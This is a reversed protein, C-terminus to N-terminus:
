SLDTISGLGTVLPIYTSTESPITVRCGNKSWTIYPENLRHVFVLDVVVVESPQYVTALGLPTKPTDNQEEAKTEKSIIACLVIQGLHEQFRRQLAEPEASSGYRTPRM